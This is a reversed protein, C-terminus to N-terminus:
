KQDFAGSLIKDRQKSISIPSSFYKNIDEMVFDFLIQVEKRNGGVGRIKFYYQSLIFAASVSDYDDILEPDYVEVAEDDEFINLYRSPRVMLNHASNIQDYYITSYNRYVYNGENDRVPILRTEASQHSAFSQKMLFGDFYNIEQDPIKGTIPDPDSLPLTFKLMAEIPRIIEIWERQNDLSEQILEKIGEASLNKEIRRVDSFFLIDDRGTYKQADENTFLQNFTQINKIQNADFVFDEPDYLEFNIGPFLRALIPYHHGGAAGISLYTPNPIAEPDWFYVLFNIEALLLKLQGVHVNGLESRPRRIYTMQPSDENFFLSRKDFTSKYDSM